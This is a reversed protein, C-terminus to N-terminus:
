EQEGGYPTPWSASPVLQSGDLMEALTDYVEIYKRGKVTTYYEVKASPPERRKEILGKSLLSDLYVHLQRSNLYCRFMVHTGIAGNLCASLVSYAIEM